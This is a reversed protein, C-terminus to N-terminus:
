MGYFAKIAEALLTGGAGASIQWTGNLAKGIMKQIWANAKSGFTRKDRNPEETEVITAIEDIDAQEIEHQALKEKLDNINGKRIKIAASIKSNDGTNVVNGDGSNIITHYFFKTIQENKAKLEDIETISGFQEDLNLMFDLLQSRVISLIQTVMNISTYKRAKLIQFFPNGMKRINQEILAALEAPFTAELVGSKNEDKLSELTEVSQYFDMSRIAEELKSNLGATPLPQDNVQYHGNIYTGSIQGVCKRYDPLDDEFDYGKLESNVWNLLETNKLRSALVKTKLLPSAISKESDVLENIINSILKM